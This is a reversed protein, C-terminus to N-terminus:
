RWLGPLYAPGTTADPRRYAPGTKIESSTVIEATLNTLNTSCIQFLRRGAFAKLNYGLHEMYPINVLM